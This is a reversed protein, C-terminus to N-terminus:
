NTKAKRAETNTEANDLKLWGQKTSKILIRWEEHRIVRLIQDPEKEEM